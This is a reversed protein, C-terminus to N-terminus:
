SARCPFRHHLRRCRHRHLLPHLLSLFHPPLLHLPRLLTRSYSHYYNSYSCFYHCSPPLYRSDRPHKLQFTRASAMSLRSSQNKVFLIRTQLGWIHSNSRLLRHHVAPLSLVLPISEFARSCCPPAISLPPTSYSFQDSLFRPLYPKCISATDDRAMKPSIARLHTQPLTARRAQPQLRASAACERISTQGCRYITTLRM